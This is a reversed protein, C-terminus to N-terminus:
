LFEKLAPKYFTAVKEGHEIFKRKKEEGAVDLLKGMRLEMKQSLETNGISKLIEKLIGLHAAYFGCDGTTVQNIFNPNYKDETAEVDFYWQALYGNGMHFYPAQINKEHPFSIDHLDRAEDFSPFGLAQGHCTLHNRTQFSRGEYDVIGAMKMGSACMLTWFDTNIGGDIHVRVGGTGDPRSDMEGLLECIEGFRMFATNFPCFGQKIKGVVYPHNQYAAKCKRFFSTKIIVVDGNM